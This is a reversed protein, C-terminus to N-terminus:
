GTINKYYGIKELKGPSSLLITIVDIRLSHPLNPHLLKYYQASKILSKLKWPTISEEPLGFKTGIRTKVEVFVLTKGEIAVIDIESYGKRFNREIIKFGHSQLYQCAANEGIKGTSLNNRRRM